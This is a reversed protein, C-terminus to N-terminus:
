LYFVVDTSNGTCALIFVFLEFLFLRVRRRPRTHLHLGGQLVGDGVRHTARPNQVHRPIGPRRRRRRPHVVRAM